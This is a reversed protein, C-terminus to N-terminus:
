RVMWDWAPRGKRETIDVVEEEKGKGTLEKVKPLARPRDGSEESCLVPLLSSFVSLTWPKRACKGATRM